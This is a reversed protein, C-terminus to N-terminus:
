SRLLKIFLLGEVKETTRHCILIHCQIKPLKTLIMVGSTLAISPSLTCSSHRASLDMVAAAMSQDLASKSIRSSELYPFESYPRIRTVMAVQSLEPHSFLETNLVSPEIDLSGAHTFRM